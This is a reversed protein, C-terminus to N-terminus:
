LSITEDFLLKISYTYCRKKEGLLLHSYCAYIMKDVVQVMIPAGSIIANIVMVILIRMVEARCNIDQLHQFKAPILHQFLTHLFFLLINQFCFTKLFDVRKIENISLLHRTKYVLVFNQYCHDVKHKQRISLSQPVYYEIAWAIKTLIKLIKPILQTNSYNM